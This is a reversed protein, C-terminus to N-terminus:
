RILNSSVNFRKGCHSCAYPKEGTHIRLHKVLDSSQSFSQWCEGCTNPIGLAPPEAGGPTGGRRRRRKGPAAGPPEKARSFSKGCDVCKYPRQGTTGATGVEKGCDWCSQPPGAHAR